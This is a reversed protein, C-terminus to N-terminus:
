QAARLAPQRLATRRGARCTVDLFNEILFATASRDLFPLLELHKLSFDPCCRYLRDVAEGAHLARGLRHLAIARIIAPYWSDPSLRLAAEAASLAPLWARELSWACALEALTHARYLDHQGLREADQFFPIAFRARGLLLHASGTCAHAFAYSPNVRVAESLHVLAGEPDASMLDAAGLHAHPRADQDDIAIARHAYLRVKDLEPLHGGHPGYLQRAQWLHWAALEGLVAASDPERENAKMLCDHAILIDKPTRRHLHLRGRRLLQWGELRELPVDQVRAQEARDIESEVMAVIENALEDRMASVSALSRELRRAWLTRGRAVDDLVVRVRIHGREASAIAGGVVYRAGLANGAALSSVEEERFRFSWGSAIVPLWRMNTLGAIVDEALAAGLAELGARSDDARFPLVAVAPPGNETTWSSRGQESPFTEIFSEDGRMALFAKVPMRINKLRKEGLDRFSAAALRRAERWSAEALVVGGAPAVEQLRAAINVGDGYRSDQRMIIEGTNIGARFPMRRETPLLRDLEAIKTQFDFVALLADVASAFEVMMSDGAAGFMRGGRASCSRSIVARREEFTAVAAEEDLGMLRSFGVADISVITALHRTYHRDAM